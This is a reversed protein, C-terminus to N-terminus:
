KFAEATLDAVRPRQDYSATLAHCQNCNQREPHTSRIGLAGSVGHCSGCNERMWTPHPIAPPAGEWARSGSGGFALPVFENERPPRETADTDRPVQTLVLPTQAVTHCQRCSVLPAHSMAPAIKDGIM